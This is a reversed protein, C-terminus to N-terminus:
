ILDGKGKSNLYKKVMLAVKFVIAHDFERLDLGTIKKIKELRYVLTNRHVFLKRAAESVNLNNEFFKSITYLTEQDLIEVSSDSFVEQIFMTCQIIPLQYILRGIGLNEYDIINKNSEFIKGIEIATKAENFARPISRIDTAPRGIGITVKIMLESSIAEELNQAFKQIDKTSQEAKFERIIAINTDSLVIIFDKDKNPCMENILENFAMDPREATKLLYITRFVKDEFGLDKAKTFMDSQLVSDSLIGKIFTAKDYKEDHGVKVANLALAALSALEEAHRDSGKVYVSYEVGAGRAELHKFTYDSGVGDTNPNNDPAFNEHMAGMAKLDSSAIIVGDSDVVGVDRNIADKVQLVVSQFIRTSMPM